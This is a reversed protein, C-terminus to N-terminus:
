RAPLPRRSSRSSLLTSSSCQLASASSDCSRPSARRSSPWASAMGPPLLLPLTGTGARLAPWFGFSVAKTTIRTDVLVLLWKAVAYFAAVGVIGYRLGLVFASITVISVITNLRVLANGEGCAQVISFNLAVLATAIGAVCLLQLPLIAAHWKSGFVVDVLDPATVMVVLFSPILLATSLRKSRLWARELREREEQLRAFAPSVVQTLPVSIRAMPLFMVNYALSYSGLATAGLFRGVLVNDININAWMMTRAGFVKAGFGGLQRLSDGSFMFHPRWESLIWVLVTSVASFTVWNAVIAWPGFGAIAVTLAAAAGAVTAMIERIQLSRYALKRTLLSVPAVALSNFLFSLSTVAFLPAVAPTNFIDAVVGSLAIGGITALVGIAVTAWFITSRDLETIEKRQVLATGLAPDTFLVVFSTTVIAMGAVGYDAPTLLRALVLAVIVRSGESVLLTLMKWKVGTMVAGTM